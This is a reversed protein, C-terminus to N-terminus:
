SSSYSDLSFKTSLVIKKKRTHMNNIRKRDEYNEDWLKAKILCDKDQHLGGHAFKLSEPKSQAAVMVVDKDARLTESAFQLADGNQSCAALAVDKDARLTESAYFLAKGNQSCAALVVEKNFEDRIGADSLALMEARPPMKKDDKMKQEPVLM